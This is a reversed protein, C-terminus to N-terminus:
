QDVHGISFNECYDKAQHQDKNQTSHMSAIGRVDCLVRVVMCGGRMACSDTGPHTSGGLSNGSISLFDRM